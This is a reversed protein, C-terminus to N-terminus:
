RSEIIQIEGGGDWKRFRGLVWLGSIVTAKADRVRRIVAIAAALGLVLDVLVQVLQRLVPEDPDVAYVTVLRVLNGFGRSLAVQFDEGTDEVQLVEWGTKVVDGPSGVPVPGDEM